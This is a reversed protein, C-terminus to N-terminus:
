LNLSLDVCVLEMATINVEDVAVFLEVTVDKGTMIVYHIVGM